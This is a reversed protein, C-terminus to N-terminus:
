SPYKINLSDLSASVKNTDISFFDKEFREVKLNIKISSVDPINKKQTCSIIEILLLFLLLKKM